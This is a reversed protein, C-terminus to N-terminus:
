RAGTAATDRTCRPEEELEVVPVVGAKIVQAGAVFDAFQEGSHYRCLLQGAALCLCKKLEQHCLCVV